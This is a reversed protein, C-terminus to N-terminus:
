PSWKSYGTVDVTVSVGLDLNNLICDVFPKLSECREAPSESRIVPSLSRNAKLAHITHFATLMNTRLLADWADNFSKYSEPSAVVGCFSIVRHDKFKGSEDFFSRFFAM